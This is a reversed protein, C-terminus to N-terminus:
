VELVQSHVPSSYSSGFAALLEARALIAQCRHSRQVRCGFAGLLHVSLRIFVNACLSREHGCDANFARRWFTVFNRESDHVRDSLNASDVKQREKWKSKLLAVLAPAVVASDQCRIRLNHSDRKCGSSDRANQSNLRSPFCPQKLTRRM